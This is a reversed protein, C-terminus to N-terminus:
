NNAETTEDKIFISLLRLQHSSCGEDGGRGGAQEGGPQERRSRFCRPPHHIEEGGLDVAVMRAFGVEVGRAPKCLPALGM